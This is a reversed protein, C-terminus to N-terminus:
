FYITLLQDNSVSTFSDKFLRSFHKLKDKDEQIIMLPVICVNM